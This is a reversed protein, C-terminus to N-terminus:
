TAENTFELVTDLLGATLAAGAKLVLGQGERLNLTQLNTNGLGTDWVQNLPVITEWEDWTGTALAPEDSNWVMPFLVGGDTVATANHNFSYQAPLAANNTDMAVPTVVTGPTQATIRYLNMFGLVGTVAATQNNLRWLRSVHLFKGSTAGNFGVFMYKNAAFTVSQGMVIWTEAM